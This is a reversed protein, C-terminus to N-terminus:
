QWPQIASQLFGWVLLLILAQIAKEAPSDLRKKLFIM